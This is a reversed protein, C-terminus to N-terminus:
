APRAPLAPLLRIKKHLRYARRHQLRGKAVRAMFLDVKNWAYFSLCSGGPKLLRHMQAFAPELWTDNDDNLVRRGTRDRYHVLYPPDTLVFDISRSPMDKMVDVCDGRTVGDLMETLPRTM